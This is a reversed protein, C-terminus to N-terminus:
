RQINKFFIPYSKIMFNNFPSATTWSKYKNYLELDKGVLSGGNFWRKMQYARTETIGRALVRINYERNIM